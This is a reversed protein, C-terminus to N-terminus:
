DDKAKVVLRTYSYSGKDVVSISVSHNNTIIRQRDGAATLLKSKLEKQREECDYRGSYAKIYDSALADLEDDDYVTYDEVDAETLPAPEVDMEVYGWFVDYEERMRAHLKESPKIPYSVVDWRDYDWVHVMGLPLGTIMLYHQVQYIWHPPLGCKYVTDIDVPDNHEGIHRPDTDEAIWGAKRMTPAKFEHLISEGVGDPHGGLFPQEADRLLIQLDTGTVSKGPTKGEADYKAFAAEDNITPDINERVYREIEPEMFNGRRIHNNDIDGKEFRGTKEEWVHYPLRYENVGLICGADYGGIYTSRKKAM